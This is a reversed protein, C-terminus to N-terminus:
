CSSVRFDTAKTKSMKFVKQLQSINAQSGAVKSQILLNNRSYKKDTETIQKLGKGLNDSEACMKIGCM